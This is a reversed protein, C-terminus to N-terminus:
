AVQMTAGSIGEGSQRIEKPELVRVSDAPNEVAWALTQVMQERTVLALREAGDRTAPILRAVTYMPALLLPWRRGPGLVYWPRVFTAALGAEAILREGEARIAQYERMIPAPRAVSLYIFHRIAARKAVRVAERISQLDVARFEAAKRPSPHAVGVLHVFTDAPAIQAAYSDGNLADGSIVECGAPLKGESGARVLARVSHGRRVLDAALASGIFGTGGTLFVQRSSM